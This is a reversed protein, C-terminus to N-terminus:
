PVKRTSDSIFHSGRRIQYGNWTHHGPFLFVRLGVTIWAHRLLRSFHIGPVQPYLQAVRGKPSIFVSAQDELTSNPRPALLGVRYFLFNNLLRWSIWGNKISSSQPPPWPRLQATSGLLSLSFKIATVFPHSCSLTHFKTHLYIIFIIYIRRRNSVNFYYTTFKVYNSDTSTFAACSYIM